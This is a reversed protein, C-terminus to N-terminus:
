QYFVFAYIRDFLGRLYEVCNITWVKVKVFMDSIIKTNIWRFALTLNQGLVKDAYNKFKLSINKPPKVKM